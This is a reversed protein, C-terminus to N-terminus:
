PVVAEGAPHPAMADENQKLLDEPRVDGGPLPPPNPIGPGSNGEPVKAEAGDPPPRQAM